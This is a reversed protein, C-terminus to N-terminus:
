QKSILHCKLKKKFIVISNSSKISDCLNIWLKPGELLYSNLLKNSKCVYLHPNNCNRTHYNHVNCNAEFMDCLSIPVLHYNWRYM